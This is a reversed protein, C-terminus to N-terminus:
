PQEVVLPIDYCDGSAISEIRVAYTRTQGPQLGIAEGAELVAQTAAVQTSFTNLTVNGDVDVAHYRFRPQVDSV